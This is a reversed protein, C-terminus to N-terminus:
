VLKIRFNLNNKKVYDNLIIAHAKGDRTITIGALNEDDEFDKIVKEILSQTSDFKELCLWEINIM